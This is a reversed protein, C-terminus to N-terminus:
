LYKGKLEEFKEANNNYWDKHSKYLKIKKNREVIKNFAWYCAGGFILAMFWNNSGLGFLALLGSILGIIIFIIVMLANTTLLKKGENCQAWLTVLEQEEKNKSISEISIGGIDEQTIVDLSGIEVVNSCTPCKYKKGANEDTFTKTFGCSSCVTQIM